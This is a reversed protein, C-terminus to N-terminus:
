KYCDGVVVVVVTIVWELVDAVALRRDRGPWWESILWELQGVSEEVLNGSVIGQCAVQIRRGQQVKGLARINNLSDRKRTLLEM